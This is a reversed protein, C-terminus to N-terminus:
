LFVILVEEGLILARDINLNAVQSDSSSITYGVAMAHFSHASGQRIPLFGFHPHPKSLAITLDIAVPEGRM